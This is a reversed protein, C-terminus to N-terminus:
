RTLCKVQPSRDCPQFKLSNATAKVRLPAYPIVLYLVFFRVLELVQHSHVMGYPIQYTLNYYLRQM